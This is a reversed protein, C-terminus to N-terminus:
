KKRQRPLKTAPTILERADCELAKAIKALTELTVNPTDGREISSWLTTGSRMEARKAAETQTLGLAKRRVRMKERDLTQM